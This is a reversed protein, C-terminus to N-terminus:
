YTSMCAVLMAVNCGIKSSAVKALMDRVYRAFSLPSLVGGKGLTFFASVNDHWRVRAQQNSYCFALLRVIGVDIKDDLLKHFLKWYSVKDCATSVDLFMVVVCQTDISLVNLFVLASVLQAVPPSLLSIHMLIIVAKSM